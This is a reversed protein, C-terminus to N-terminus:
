RYMRLAPSKELWDWDVEARRLVARILAIVRNARSASTQKRKVEAIKAVLDRSVEPLPKM